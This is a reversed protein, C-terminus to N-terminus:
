GKQRQRLQDEVTKLLGKIKKNNPAVKVGQLAYERAKEWEGRDMYLMTMNVLSPFHDQRIEYAKQLQRLAEEQAVPDNRQEQMLIASYNFRAAHCEPSAETTARYLTVHNRWDFNRVFTRASYLALVLALAGVPVHRLWRAGTALVYRRSLAVGAGAVAVCFGVSPLYLLREAVLVGIPVILNGILSYAIAFFGLGFLLGLVRARLAWVFAAVLCAAAVMGVVCAASDLSQSLVVQRYSYDASLTLPFFLLRLYIALIKFGTLLRTTLPHGFLLYYTKAPPRQLFLGVVLFRIFVFLAAVGVYMVLAAVTQPVSRAMFATRRREPTPEQWADRARDVGDVLLLLGPGVIATEKSLLACFYAAGAVPLWVAAGVGGVTYRRAHLCLAVLLFLATLIEARGVIGTVAETHIPHTAFLLASVVALLRDRLLSDVLVLVLVCVVAHLLINVAHFAPSYLGAIKFNLAYSAITVPRYLDASTGFYTYWYDTVFIRWFSEKANIRPDRVILKDDFVFDGPIGNFYIVVAVLAVLM